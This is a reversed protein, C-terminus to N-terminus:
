VAYAVVTFDVQSGTRGGGTAEPPVYGRLFTELPNDLPQITPVTISSVWTLGVWSTADKSGMINDIMKGTLERLLTTPEEGVAYQYVISVRITWRAEQQQGLESGPQMSVRQVALAPYGSALEVFRRPDAEMKTAFAVPQPAYSDGDWDAYHLFAEVLETEARLFSSDAM